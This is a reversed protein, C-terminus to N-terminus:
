HGQVKVDSNSVIAGNCGKCGTIYHVTKDANTIAINVPTINLSLNLRANITLVKFPSPGM